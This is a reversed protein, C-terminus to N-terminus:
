KVRQSNVAAVCKNYKCVECTYNNAPEAYTTHGCRACSYHGNQKIYSLQQEVQEPFIPLGHKVDDDNYFFISMKGSPELYAREIQGLHAINQTRLDSLIENITNKKKELEEVVFAGKVIIKVVEGEIIKEFLRNNSIFYNIVRYLLVIIVLVLLAPLMGVKSYFMADGTASGLAIILAVEFLGQMFARRGMLRLCLMLVVFMIITRIIVEVLFQWVEEGLLFSQWDIQLNWM